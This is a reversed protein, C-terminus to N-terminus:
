QVVPYEPESEVYCATTRNFDSVYARLTLAHQGPSPSNWPLPRTGGSLDLYSNPQADVFLQVALLAGYTPDGVWIGSNAGWVVSTSGSVADGTLPSWIRAGPPQLFDTLVCVPLTAYPNTSQGGQGGKGKSGGGGGRAADASITGLLLLSLTLVIAYAYRKATM